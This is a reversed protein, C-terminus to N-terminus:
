GWKAQQVGNLFQQVTQGGSQFLSCLNLRAGAFVGGVQVSGDLLPSKGLSGSCGSDAFCGGVTSRAMRTGRGSTDGCAKAWCKVVFKGNATRIGTSKTEWVELGVRNRVPPCNLAAPV